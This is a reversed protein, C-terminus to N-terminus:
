KLEGHVRFLPQFFLLPKIARKEKIKNLIKETLTCTYHRAVERKARNLIRNIEEYSMLTEKYEKNILITGELLFREEECLEFDIYSSIQNEMHITKEIAKFKSKLERKRKQMKSYKEMCSPCNRLHQSVREMDKKSLEFNIYNLMLKKLNKCDLNGTLM